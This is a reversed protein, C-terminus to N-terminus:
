FGDRQAQIAESEPTADYYDRPLKEEETLGIASDLDQILDEIIQIASGTIEYEKGKHSVTIYDEGTHIIKTM